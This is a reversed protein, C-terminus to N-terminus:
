AIQVINCRGFRITQGKELGSEGLDLVEDVVGTLLERDPNPHKNVKTVRLWIAVRNEPRSSNAATPFLVKVQDGIHLNDLAFDGCCIGEATANILPPSLIDSM